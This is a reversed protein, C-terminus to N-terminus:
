RARDTEKVVFQSASKILNALKKPTSVEQFKGIWEKFDGEQLHKKVHAELKNGARFEELQKPTVIDQMKCAWGKLTGNEVHQHIVEMFQDTKM